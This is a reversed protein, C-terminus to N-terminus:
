ILSIFLLSLILERSSPCRPLRAPAAGSPTTKASAILTPGPSFDQQRRTSGLTSPDGCLGAGATVAGGRGSRGSTQLDPVSARAAERTGRLIGPRKQPM